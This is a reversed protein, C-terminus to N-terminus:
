GDRIMPLLQFHIERHETNAEDETKSNHLRNRSFLVNKELYKIKSHNTDANETDHFTSVVDEALLAVLLCFRSTKLAGNQSLM